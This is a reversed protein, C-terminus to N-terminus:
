RYQMAPMAFIGADAWMIQICFICDWFKGQTRTRPWVVIVRLRFFSQPFAIGEEVVQNWIDIMAPIDKIIYERIIVM